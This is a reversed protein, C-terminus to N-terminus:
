ARPYKLRADYLRFIPWALGDPNAVLALQHIRRATDLTFFSQFRENKKGAPTAKEGLIDEFSKLPDHKAVVPKAGSPAVGAPLPLAELGLHVSNRQSSRNPSSSRSPVTDDPSLLPPPMLTSDASDHSPVAMLYSQGTWKEAVQWCHSRRYIGDVGHDIIDAPLSVVGSGGAVTYWGRSQTEHIWPAAGKPVECLFYEVGKTWKIGPADVVVLPLSQIVAYMFLWQGNRLDQIEEISKGRASQREFTMFAQLFTTSNICDRNYSQMLALNIEDNALRKANEKKQRKPELQEFGRRTGELSPLLPTDFPVPPQVPPSSRDYEDMVRRLASVTVDEKDAASEGSSAQDSSRTTLAARNVLVDYLDSFDRYLEQLLIRNLGSEEFENKKSKASPPWSGYRDKYFATIHRRMALFSAKWAKFRVTKSETSTTSNAIGAFASPFDFSELRTRVTKLRSNLDLTARELRKATGDTIMHYKPSKLKVIEDYKGVGHVFGENYLDWSRMREGLIIAEITKERSTRVDALRFYSLYDRFNTAAEEGLTSGDLNSFEYRQLFDAIKLFIGFINPTRTTSVLSQNTLFAFVNRVAVLQEIDDAGLSSHASTLDTQLPLPLYLHVEQRPVEDFSDSFTRSGQSSGDAPSAPKSLQGPPQLSLSHMQYELITPTPQNRTVNGYAMSTLKRSAAFISADLRFSVGRCADRAHLYVLVDGSEKWLEPVPQFNLLPSLDYTTKEANSPAAIWAKPLQVKGTQVEVRTKGPMWSRRKNLKQEKTPTPARLHKSPSDPRSGPSYNGRSAPRSTDSTPTFPRHFDKYPSSSRSAARSSARSSPRSDPRGSDSVPTLPRLFGKSPSPPRTGPRSGAGPAPSDQRAPMLKHLGNLPLMDDEGTLPPSLTPGFTPTPRQDHRVRLEQVSASTSLPRLKANAPLPKRPPSSARSSQSPYPSLTPASTNTSKDSSTSGLSFISSLRKASKEM